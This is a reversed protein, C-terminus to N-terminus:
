HGAARRRLSVTAREIELNGIRDGLKVRLEATVTAGEELARAIRRENRESKPKLRVVETEGARVSRTGPLQELGYSRRKEAGVTLKGTAKASLWQRATVKVRVRIAGSRQGQSRKVRVRGIPGPEGLALNLAGARRVFREDIESGDLNAHGVEGTELSTWYIGREGVAIGWPDAVEAIFDQDADSGDLNARGISDAGFNTWYLHTDDVAVGAALNTGEVLAPEVNSGDLDARAIAGGVGSTGGIWYVHTDDLALSSPFSTGIFGPDVGSGDLNARGISDELFDAWYVHAPDVAVAGQRSDASGAIWDPEPDSGDLGVRGIAGDGGWYLHGRDVALGFAGEGPTRIFDWQSTFGRLPARGITGNYGTSWYICCEAGAASSPLALGVIAAFTGLLGLSLRRGAGPAQDTM